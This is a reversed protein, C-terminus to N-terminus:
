KPNLPAILTEAVKASFWGCSEAARKLEPAGAQLEADDDGGGTAPGFAATATASLQIGHPRTAWPLILLPPSVYVDGAALAYIQYNAEFNQVEFKFKYNINSSLKYKVYM